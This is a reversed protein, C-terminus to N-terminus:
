RRTVLEIRQRAPHDVVPDAPDRDGYPQGVAVNGLEVPKLLTSTYGEEHGRVELRTARSHPKAADVRQRRQQRQPAARHQRGRHREAGDPILPESVLQAPDRTELRPRDAHVQCERGHEVDVAVRLVRDDVRAREALVRLQHRAQADPEDPAGAGAPQQGRRLVVRAVTVGLRIGM